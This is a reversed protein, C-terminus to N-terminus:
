CIEWLMIPALLYAGKSYSLIDDTACFQTLVEALAIFLTCPSKHRVAGPDSQVQNVYVVAVNFEEALRVLDSLHKGLKQQRESLEGRGSFEVRFLCMMSDIILMSVTHSVCLAAASKCMDIQEEHNFVRACFINELVDDSSVGFRECIGEIRETRFNGELDLYIVAGGGGGNEQPLQATVALTHMLQTKGTRFEGFFETLSGTEIGGGLIEDLNNSGTSIKIVRERHLKVQLGTKFVGSGQSDLKRCNDLIQNVKTESFGKISQLVKVPVKLCMGITSLGKARLKEIDAANVGVNSLLDISVFTCAEDALDTHLNAVAGADSKVGAASKSSKRGGASVTSTM